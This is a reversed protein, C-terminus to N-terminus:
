GSGMQVADGRSHRMSRQDSGKEKRLLALAEDILIRLLWSRFAGEYEFKLPNRSASRWCSKVADEAGENTGLVRCAIFHLLGRCHSFRAAFVRSYEGARNSITIDECV